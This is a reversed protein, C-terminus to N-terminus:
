RGRYGSNRQDIHNLWTDLETPPMPLSAHGEKKLAVNLKQLLSQRPGSILLSPRGHEQTYEPPNFEPTTIITMLKETNKKFQEEYEPKVSLTINTDNYLKGFPMFRVEIQLGMEKAAEVLPLLAEACHRQYVLVKGEETWNRGTHLHKRPELHTAFLDGQTPDSM